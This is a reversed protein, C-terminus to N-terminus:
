DGSLIEHSVEVIRAARRAVWYTGTLEPAELRELEYDDCLLVDPVFVKGGQSWIYAALWHIFDQREQRAARLAERAEDREEMLAVVQAGLATNADDIHKLDAWAVRLASVLALMLKGDYCQPSGYGSLHGKADAEYGALDEETIPKPEDTM